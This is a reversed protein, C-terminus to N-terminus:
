MSAVRLAVLESRRMASAFGFALLARDRLGRPDEGCTALMAAILDTTAPAKRAPATGISRRIGRLIRSIPPSLGPHAPLPSAGRIPVLRRFRGLGLRLGQPHRGRRSASRHSARAALVSAPGDRHYSLRRPM